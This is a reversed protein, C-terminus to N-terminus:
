HYETSARDAYPVAAPRCSIMRVAHTVCRPYLTAYPRALPAAFPRTHPRTTDM